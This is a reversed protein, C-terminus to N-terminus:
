SLTHTHTHTHTHTYLSLSLSLSLSLLSLLSFSSFLSFLSLSLFFSLILLSIVYKGVGGMGAAVQFTLTNAGASLSGLRSTQTTCDEDFVFLLVVVFFLFCFVFFLFFCFAARNLLSREDFVPNFCGTDFHRPLRHEHQGHCHLQHPQLQQVSFCV